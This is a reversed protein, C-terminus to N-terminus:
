APPSSDCGCGGGASANCTSRRSSGPARGAAARSGRVTPLVESIRRTSRCSPTSNFEPTCTSSPGLSRYPYVPDFFDEETNGDDIPDFTCNYYNSNAQSDYVNVFPVLKLWESIPTGTENALQAQVV